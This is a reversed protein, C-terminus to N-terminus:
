LYQQLHVAGLSLTDEFMRLSHPNVDDQVHVFDLGPM